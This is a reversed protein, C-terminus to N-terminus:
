IRISASADPCVGTRCCDHTVRYSIAPPPTATSLTDVPTLEGGSSWQYALVPSLGDMEAVEGTQLDWHLPGSASEKERLLFKDMKGSADLILVGASEHSCGVPQELPTYNWYGFPIVLQESDPAWIIQRVNVTPTQEFQYGEPNTCKTPIKAEQIIMDDLAIRESRAGTLPNVLLLGNRTYRGGGILCNNLIAVHAGDPSWHADANCSYYTNACLNNAACSTLPTLDIALPPPINPTPTAHSHQDGTFPLDCGALLAIALACALLLSLLRARRGCYARYRAIRM